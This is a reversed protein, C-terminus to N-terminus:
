FFNGFTLWGLTGIELFQDSLLLALLFHIHNNIFRWLKDDLDESGVVSPCTADILRAVTPTKKLFMESIM